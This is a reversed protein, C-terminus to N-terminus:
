AGRKTDRDDPHYIRVCEIEYWSARSAMDILLVLSAREYLYRIEHWTRDMHLFTNWPRNRAELIISGNPLYVQAGGVIIQGAGFGAVCNANTVGTAAIFHACLNGDVKGFYLRIDQQVVYHKRTVLHLFWAEIVRCTWLLRQKWSRRLKM